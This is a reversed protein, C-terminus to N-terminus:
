SHHSTRVTFSLSFAHKVQDPINKNPQDRADDRFRHHVHVYRNEPCDHEADDSRDDAAANGVHKRARCIFSIMGGAENQGCQARDQNEENAILQINMKRSNLRVSTAYSTAPLDNNRGHNRLSGRVAVMRRHAIQGKKEDM